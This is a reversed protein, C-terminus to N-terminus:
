RGYLQAARARGGAARNCRRHEPGQYKSRDYDDHGLHWPELPDILEKCRWCRASGSAVVKALQKRLKQHGVGYGRATTSGM